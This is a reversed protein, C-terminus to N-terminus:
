CKEKLEILLTSRTFIHIISDACSSLIFLLTLPTSEKEDCNKEKGDETDGGDTTVAKENPHHLDEEQSRWAVHSLAPMVVNLYGYM